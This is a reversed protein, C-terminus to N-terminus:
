RKSFSKPICSPKNLGFTKDGGVQGLKLPIWSMYLENDSDYLSKAFYNEFELKDDINSFFVSEWKKLLNKKDQLLTQSNLVMNRFTIVTIYKISNFTLKYKLKETNSKAEKSEIHCESPCLMVNPHDSKM